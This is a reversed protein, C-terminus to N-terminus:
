ARAASCAAHVAVAIKDKATDISAVAMSIETMKTSGAKHRSGTKGAVM